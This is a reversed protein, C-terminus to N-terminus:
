SSWLEPEPSGSHERTPATGLTGCPGLAAPTGSDPNRSPVADTEEEQFVVSIVTGDPTRYAFGDGLVVRVGDEDIVPTVDTPIGDIPVRLTFLGNTSM